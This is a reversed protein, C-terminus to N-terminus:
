QYIHSFYNKPPIIQGGCSQFTEAIFAAVRKGDTKIKELAVDVESAYLDGLDEDPRNKTNYKGRYTDPCAVQLM